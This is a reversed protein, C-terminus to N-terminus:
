RHGLHRIQPVRGRGAHAPATTSRVGRGRFLMARCRLLRAKVFTTTVQEFRTVVACIEILLEQLLDHDGRCMSRAMPGWRRIAEDPSLSHFPPSMSVEKFFALPSFIM